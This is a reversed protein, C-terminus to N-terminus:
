LPIAFAAFASQTTSSVSNLDCVKANMVDGQHVRRRKVQSNVGGGVSLHVVEDDVAAITTAQVANTEPPGVDMNVVDFDRVPIFPLFM